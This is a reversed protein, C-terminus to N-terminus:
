SPKLAMVPRAPRLSGGRRGGMTDYEHAAYAQCLAKSRDVNLRSKADTDHHQVNEPPKGGEEGGKKQGLERGRGEGM